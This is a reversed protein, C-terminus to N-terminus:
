TITASKVGETEEINDEDKSPSCYRFCPEKLENIEKSEDDM